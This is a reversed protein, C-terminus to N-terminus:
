INMKNYNCQQNEENTLVKNKIKVAEVNILPKIDIKPKIIKKIITQDPEPTPGEPEPEEGAGDNKLYHNQLTGVSSRMLFAIRELQLKNLKNFYKSVYASRLANVGINKENTIEKLLKKLGDETYQKNNSNIFLYERPYETLSEIINNILTNINKKSFSKIVDDNLNYIIPKHGKKM